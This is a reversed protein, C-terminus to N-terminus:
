RRRTAKPTRQISANPTSENSPRRACDDLKPWNRMREKRRLATNKARVEAAKERARALSELQAPTREKKATASEDPNANGLGSSREEVESM